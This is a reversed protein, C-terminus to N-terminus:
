LLVLAALLGIFLAAVVSGMVYGAFNSADRKPAQRATSM